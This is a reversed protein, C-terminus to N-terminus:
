WINVRDEPALYMGDGEQIGYLDLFEDFRQLVVNIRLYNLPHFDAMNQLALEPTMVTMYNEAYARFFADYDFAEKGAAIRLIVKMILMIQKQRKQLYADIGVAILLGVLLLLMPLVALVETYHGRIFHHIAEKM